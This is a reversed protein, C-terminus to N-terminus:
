VVSRFQRPHPFPLLIDSLLSYPSAQRGIPIATGRPSRRPYPLLRSSADKAELDTSWTFFLFIIRSITSFQGLSPDLM